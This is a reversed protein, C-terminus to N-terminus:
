SFSFSWVLWSNLGCIMQADSESALDTVLSRWIGEIVKLSRLQMAQILGGFSLCATSLMPFPCIYFGM